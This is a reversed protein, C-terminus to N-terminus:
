PRAGASDQVNRSLRTPWSAALPRMHMLGSPSVGFTARCVRSLHALDSFGAALAADALTRTNWVYEAAYRLRLWLVFRRFPIGIQESFLHTLRSPSIHAARAAEDIRPHGDLARDLYELAAIVSPSVREPRRPQRVLSDLLRQTYDVLSEADDAPRDGIAVLEALDRGALSGSRRRLESGVASYPEVLAYFIQSGDNRFAHRVGSPVVAVTASIRQDALTLEFPDDFSVALQVGHHAHPASVGGLGVYSLLGPQWLLAGSWSRHDTNASGARDEAATAM